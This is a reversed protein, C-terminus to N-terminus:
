ILCYVLFFLRSTGLRVCTRRAWYFYVPHFINNDYIRSSCPLETGILSRAHASPSFPSLQLAQLVGNGNVTLPSPERKVGNTLEPSPTRSEVISSVTLFLHEQGTVVFAVMSLPMRKATLPVDDYPVTAAIASADALPVVDAMEVDEIHELSPPKDSVASRRIGDLIRTLGDEAKAPVVENEKDEGQADNERERERDREQEREKEKIRKTREAAEEAEKAARELRKRAQWEKLAVKVVPPPAPAAAAPPSPERTLPAPAPAEPSLSAGMGWAPSNLTM